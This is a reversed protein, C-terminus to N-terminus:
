LVDGSMVLCHWVDATQEDGGVSIEVCIGCRKCMLLFQEALPTALDRYQFPLLFRVLELTPLADGAVLELLSALDKQGSLTLSKISSHLGSRSLTAVANSPLEYDTISCCLEAFASFWGSAVFRRMRHGNRELFGRLVHPLEAPETDQVVLTELFPMEFSALLNSAQTASSLIFSHLRPFQCKQVRKRADAVCPSSPRLWLVELRASVLPIVADFFAISGMLELRRLGQHTALESFARAFSPAQTFRPCPSCFATSVVALKQCNRFIYTLARSHKNTWVHTGDLALDLRATWWGPEHAKESTSNHHELAAAVRVAQDGSTVLLYQFLYEIGLSRWIRCVLCITLKLDMSERFRRHLSIGYDDRAYSTIASGGNCTFAGPIFTAYSFIELWIENPLQKHKSVPSSIVIPSTRCVNSDRNTIIALAM